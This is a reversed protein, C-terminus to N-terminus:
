EDEDDEDDEEADAARERLGAGAIYVRAFTAVDAHDKDKAVHVAWQQALAVALLWLAFPLLVLTAQTAIVFRANCAGLGASFAGPSPAVSERLALPLRSADADTARMGPYVVAMTAMAACVALLPANAAAPVGYLTDVVNAAEDRVRPDRHKRLAIFALERAIPKWPAVMRPEFLLLSNLLARLGAVQVSESRPMGDCMDVLAALLDEGDPHAADRSSTREAQMQLASAVNANLLASDCHRRSAAVMRRFARRSMFYLYKKVRFLSRELLVGELQEELDNDPGLKEAAVTALPVLNQLVEGAHSQSKLVPGTLGEVVLEALAQAQAQSRADDSAAGADSANDPDPDAEIPPHSHALLRRVLARRLLDGTVVFSAVAVAQWFWPDLLVFGFGERGPVAVGAWLSVFFSSLAAGLIMEQVTKRWRAEMAGVAPPWHLWPPWHVLAHSFERRVVHRLVPLAVNFAYVFLLLYAVGTESPERCTVAYTTVTASITVERVGVPMGVSSLLLLLGAVSVASGQKLLPSSIHPARLRLAVGSLAACLFGMLGLVSAFAIVNASMDEGLGRTGTASWKSGVAAALGGNFLCLVTSGVVRVQEHWERLEQQFHRAKQRPTAGAGPAGRAGAGAVAGAHSSSGSKASAM